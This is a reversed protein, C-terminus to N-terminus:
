ARERRLSVTLGTQRALEDIEKGKDRVTGDWEHFARQCADAQPKTM